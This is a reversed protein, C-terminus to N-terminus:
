IFDIDPPVDNVIESVNTAPTAPGVSVSVVSVPDITAYTPPFSAITIVVPIACLKTVLSTTLISPTNPEVSNFM